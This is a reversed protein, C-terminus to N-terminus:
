YLHVILNIFTSLFYICSSFYLFEHQINIFTMKKDLYLIYVYMHVVNAFMAISLLFMFFDQYKKKRIYKYLM